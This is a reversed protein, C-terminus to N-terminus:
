PSAARSAPSLANPPPRCAPPPPAAKAGANDAALASALEAEKRALRVEEARAEALKM